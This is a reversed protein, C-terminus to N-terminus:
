CQPKRSWLKGLVAKEAAFKGQLQLRAVINARNPSLTGCHLV